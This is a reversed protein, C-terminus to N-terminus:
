QVPKKLTSDDWDIRCPKTSLSFAFRSKSLELLKQIEAAFSSFDQAFEAKALLRANGGGEDM